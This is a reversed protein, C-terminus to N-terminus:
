KELEKLFRRNIKRYTRRQLDTKFDRGRIPDERYIGKGFFTEVAITALRSITGTNIKNSEEMKVESKNFTM